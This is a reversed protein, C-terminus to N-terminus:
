LGRCVNLSASTFTSHQVPVRLAVTGSPAAHMLAKLRGVHLFGSAEFRVLAYAMFVDRVSRNVQAPADDHLGEAM